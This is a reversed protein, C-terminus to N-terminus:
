RLGCVQDSVLSFFQHRFKVFGPSQCNTHILPTFILMGFGLVDAATDMFHGNIIESSDVRSSPLPDFDPVRGNFIEFIKKLPRQWSINRRRAAATAAGGQLELYLEGSKQRGFNHLRFARAWALRRLRPPGAGCCKM